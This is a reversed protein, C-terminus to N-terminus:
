LNKINVCKLSNIIDLAPEKVNFPSLKSSMVKKSHNMVLTTTQIRKTFVPKTTCFPSTPEALASHRRLTKAKARPRPTPSGQTHGTPAWTNPTQESTARWSADQRHQAAPPSWGGSVPDCASQDGGRLDCTQRWARAQGARSRHLGAQRLERGDVQQVAERGAAHGSAWAGYCGSLPPWRPAQRPTTTGAATGRGGPWRERERM